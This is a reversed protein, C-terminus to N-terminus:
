KQKKKKYVLSIAKESLYSYWSEIQHMTKNFFEIKNKKILNYSPILLKLYELLCGLFRSPIWFQM